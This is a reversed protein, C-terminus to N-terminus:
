KVYAYAWTNVTHTDLCKNKWQFHPQFKNAKALWQLVTGKFGGQRNLREYEM